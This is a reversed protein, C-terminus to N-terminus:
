VVDYWMQVKIEVDQILLTILVEDYWMQVKSEVDKDPSNASSWSSAINQGVYDFGPSLRNKDHGKTCQDAWRFNLKAFIYSLSFLWCMM